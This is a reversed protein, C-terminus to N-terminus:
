AFGEPPTGTRGNMRRPPKAARGPVADSRKGIPPWLRDFAANMAGLLKMFLYYLIACVIMALVIGVPLLWAPESLMCHPSTGPAPWLPAAQAPMCHYETPIPDISKGAPWEAARDAGFLNKIVNGALIVIAGAVVVIPMRRAFGAFEGGIMLAGVTVVLAVITVGYAFPGVMFDVFKLLPSDTGFLEDAALAPEAVAALLATLLVLGVVSMLRWADPGASMAGDCTSRAVPIETNM